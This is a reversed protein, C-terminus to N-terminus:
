GFTLSIWRSHTKKGLSTFYQSNEQVNCIYYSVKCVLHFFSFNVILM